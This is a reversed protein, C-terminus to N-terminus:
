VISLEFTFDFPEPRCQYQSFPRPGVTASGLGNNDYDLNLVTMDLPKLDHPHSADDLDTPMYRRATFSFPKNEGDTRRMDVTVDGNGVKLWRLDERNGNEQPYDYHQWLNEVTRSFEGVRGAQKSDKYSEGPGRGFWSVSDFSSPMVAMLGIRPLTEPINKGNFEGSARISVSPEGARVTYILDADLSWELVLPAVRVKYHVVVKDDSEEWQVGRVQTHTMGVKADEWIPGDGGGAADNQTLARYLYLEPGRQLLDVGDVNWTMNGRILDFGITSSGSKIGLKHGNQKLSLGGAQRSSVAVSRAKKQSSGPLHLQDWAVLHGKDAWATSKKLRFEVTIWSEQDLSGADVPLDVTRSEGPPVRPLELDKPKTTKGDQVLHWTPQLRSLDVFDYHNTVNMKSSDGTLNVTVPQIAKAYEHLSPMPTHDSLTLGDMIFDADNPEDGFDGGYAYFETGNEEHLLGHNNWEWVLGGQSLPESRFLDIYELLGGPGNGMASHM